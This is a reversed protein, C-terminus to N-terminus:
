NGGRGSPAASDGRVDNALLIISSKRAQNADGGHTLAARATATASEASTLGRSNHHQRDGIHPSSLFGKLEGNSGSVVKSWHAESAQKLGFEVNARHPLL